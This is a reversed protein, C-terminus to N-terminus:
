QDIYVIACIPFTYSFYTYDCDDTEALIPVLRKKHSERIQKFDNYWEKAYEEFAKKRREEDKQEFELQQIVIHEPLLDSKQM